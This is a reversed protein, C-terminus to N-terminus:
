KELTQRSAEAWAAAGNLRERERELRAREALLSAQIAPLFSRLREVEDRYQSIEQKLTGNCNAPVIRLRQGARMLESLLTSMQEPTAVHPLDASAPDRLDDLVRRITNTSEHLARVIEHQSELSVVSEM